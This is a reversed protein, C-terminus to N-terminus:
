ALGTMVAMPAAGHRALFADLGDLTLLGNPGRLETRALGGTIFLCPLGLAAAGAVDTLIGDGIALVRDRPLPKGAALDLAALATEYVPPYPKGFWAVEGGLAEYAAALSGACPLRVTGHDVFRDPNSCLMPLDRERARALLPAYDEPRERRDDFLGTCLIFESEELPVTELPLDRLLPGDRDPGLHYARWGWSGAALFARAADGSTVVSDYDSDRGGLRRMTEVVVPAPRPANTLMVVHGGRGRFGALARSAAPHVRVGDHYVGWVDCLIGDFDAAIERLSTLIRPTM